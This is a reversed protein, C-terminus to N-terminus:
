RKCPEVILMLGQIEVIRVADREKIPNKKEISRANWIEGRVEVTGFPNIDTLAKGRQGLMSASEKVDQPIYAKWVFPYLIIDKIGWLILLILVWLSLTPEYKKSVIYMIVLLVLVPLQLLIYRLLIRFSWM